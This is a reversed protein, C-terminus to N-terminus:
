RDALPERTKGFAAEMDKTVLEYNINGTLSRAHALEDPTYGCEFDRAFRDFVQPAIAVYGAEALRDCIHRIHSNVGFIEQIVVLGGKPKGSPDARYAGLTFQDSTTLKVKQAL